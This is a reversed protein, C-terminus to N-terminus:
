FMMSSSCMASVSVEVERPQLLEKQADAPKDDEPPPPNRETLEDSGSDDLAEPGALDELHSQGGPVRQDGPYFFEMIAMNSAFGMAFMTLPYIFFLSIRKVFKM